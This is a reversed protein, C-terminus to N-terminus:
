NFELLAIRGDMATVVVRRNDIPAVTNILAVSLRHIGEVAGTEANLAYVFGNKTGFFLTGGKEVPMSPDIDYGYDVDSVWLTKLEAATPDIAIVTDWMTRAFVVSEDESIGITERVKFKRSRWITSGNDADICSMYRDPASIFVKGMTAVPWVAAPSFLFGRTGDSWKWCLKGTKKNLAYLYNDWAGFIVKNKYISPKSEVFGEVGTYEWILAGNKLNLCRFRGDSAGVFVRNGTITPVAVLAAATKFKWLLEGNSESLCYISSDASTVIVRGKFICPSSYIPQGTQYKWVLAGDKLNFAEVAGSSNTVAVIKESIAPSGAISWETQHSWVIKVNSFKRNIGFDPRNYVTTDSLWDYKKIPLSAWVPITKTKVNRENFFVSDTRFTAITYGGFDKRGRSTSRSMVGPIGEYNTLRNRHGHGHLIAQVNYQKLLDLVEFWNSVSKDLPYHNVIFIPQDPNEMNELTEKLWRLREPTVLGDGMRLLPGQEFGIFRIEKYEFNFHDDGYLRAFKRTGSASWKTDHNGPIIYYPIDLKEIISKATDLFGGIDLEAIDGSIILFDLSDQSNVDVVALKLDEAGTGAGVHTDTFWAFRFSPESAPVATFLCLFLVLTKCKLKM